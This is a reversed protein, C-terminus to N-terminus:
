RWLGGFVMVLAAMWWWQLFVGKGDSRGRDEDLVEVGKVVDGGRLVGGGSGGAVGGGECQM